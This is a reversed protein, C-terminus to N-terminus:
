RGPHGLGAPDAAGRERGPGGHQHRPVQGGALPGPRQRARRTEAASARGTILGVGKPLFPIPRKREPAFLGEAALLKRLGNSGPWCNASAWPASRTPECASRAVVSSSRPRAHVVVSAGDRLPPECTRLLRASCTVTMSVDASPDRLTLFSTQTGPRASIQTIQGEVWVSGLRHIWDAIKRAVTRSPGRITPRPPHPVEVLANPPV